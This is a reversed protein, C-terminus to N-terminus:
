TFYNENVNLNNAHEPIRVGLLRIIEVENLVKLLVNLMRHFFWRTKFVINIDYRKNNLNKQGISSM